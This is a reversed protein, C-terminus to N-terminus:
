PIYFGSFYTDIDSAEVLVDSGKNHWIYAEFYDTTGNAYVLISANFNSLGANNAQKIRKFVSGNKYIYVVTSNYNVTFRFSVMLHYYGAKQPTFRSLSTDYAGATDFEEVDFVMKTETSTTVTQNANNKASFKPGSYRADCDSRLMLSTAEPLGTASSVPRTTSSFAQPGAFTNAADTRAIDADSVATNLQALTFSGLVAANGTSTIHGTLNANTTVTAANGSINTQDGTNTGSSTGTHSGRLLTDKYGSTAADWVRKLHHGPLLSYGPVFGPGGSITPSGAVVFVEYGKGDVNTVVNAYTNDGSVNHYVKDNELTVNGTVLVPKSEFLGSFYTLLTSKILSFLSHKPADTAESDLIAFKDADAITAKNTGFKSTLGVATPIREDTLRGDNGAVADAATAGIIPAFTTPKGSVEGWTVDRDGVQLWDGSTAPVGGTVLMYSNGTNAEVVAKGAAQASTLALRAATNAVSVSETIAISPLLSASLKDGAGILPITGSTTGTNVTAATGLGLATKVQALTRTVWSGGVRQIMDNNAPSAVVVANPDAASLSALWEARTGVFGEAVAIQYADRATSIDVQVATAVTTINVTTPM